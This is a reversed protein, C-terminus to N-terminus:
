IFIKGFRFPKLVQNTEEFLLERLKTIWLFVPLKLIAMLNVGSLFEREYDTLYKTDFINSMFPHVPNGTDIYNRIYWFCGIVIVIAIMLFIKSLAAGLKKKDLFLTKYFIGLILLFVSLIATYKIGLCFGVLIATIFFMKNGNSKIWILFSYFSLIVYFALALDVQTYTSYVTTYPMTVFVLAAYLGINKSFFRRGFSYICIVALLTFLYSILKALIDSHLLMSFMFLMQINLPRASSPNDIVNYISHHNIFLKPLTLHYVVADWGTPPALSSLFSLFLFVAVIALLFTTFQEKKSLIFTRSDKIFNLSIKFIEGSCLITLGIVLFWFFWRYLLGAIGLLLSIFALIALGIGISFCFEELPSDFNVRAKNFIKRGLATSILIIVLFYFLSLM